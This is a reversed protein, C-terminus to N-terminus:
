FGLQLAVTAIGAWVASGAAGEAITRLTRGAQRIVDEDPREEELELKIVTVQATARRPATGPLPARAMADIYSLVFREIAEISLTSDHM